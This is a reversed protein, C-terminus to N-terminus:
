FLIDKFCVMPCNEDYNWSHYSGGECFSRSSCNRCNDNKEALSQRFLAFRNNWVDTFHDTLINGQITEPRREIDLCATIDGNSLISASYVGANCIYYWKRVEAEYETGLYHTCGYTVPYGERRKSRIFELMKRYDEPELTYGDLQLARGIPEINVVRWSDLDLEEMLAFMEDLTDINKRTIVTTVQVTRFDYELLNKVAQVAKDYGGPTRRFADHYEKPGDISISITGMGVEKLKRAIEKTILTGNSTMGWQFGLQHAYGLLEFFDKKLLPEGGTICLMPLPDFNQKVEDLVQMFQQATLEPVKQEGCYTGCHLCRENCRETLEFFLHKLRPKQWLQKRYDSLMQLHTEKISYKDM